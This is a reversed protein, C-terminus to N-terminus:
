WVRVVQGVYIKNPNTINPNITVLNDLTTNFKVAIKKLTDGRQVTYYSSSAPMNIIQGV